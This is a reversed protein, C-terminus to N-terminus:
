KVFEAALAWLDQNLRTNAGMRTIPTVRIVRGTASRGPMTSSLMNEQVRNFVKWLTPLNDAERRPRLIEELTVPADGLGAKILEGELPQKKMEGKREAPDWRLAMARRGFEEIQKPKLTLKKMEDVSKILQPMFEVMKVSAEKVEELDRGSHRFAISSTPGNPAILGNTCVLEFIGAILRYRRSGNHDQDLLIEPVSDGVKKLNTTKLQFRIIHRGHESHTNRGSVAVPQLGSAKILARVIDITSFFEYRESVNPGPGDAFIAPAYRKLDGETLHTGQPARFMALQRSM